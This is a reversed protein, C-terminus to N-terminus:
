QEEGLIQPVRFRGYESAPAGALAAAHDLGPRVEDVRYVNTLPVAHTTPEVDTVDPGAVESVRAVSHLIVDLQGLYLDIEADTLDLRALMALHAVDNKTLAPADGTAAPTGSAREVALAPQESPQPQSPRPGATGPAAPTPDPQGGSSPETSM